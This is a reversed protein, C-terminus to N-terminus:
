SSPAPTSAISTPVPPAASGSQRSKKLKQAAVFKQFESDIAKAAAADIAAYDVAVDFQIASSEVRM